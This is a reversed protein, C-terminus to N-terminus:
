SRGFALYLIVGAAFLAVALLLILIVNMGTFPLASHSAHKCTDLVNGYQTFAPGCYQTASPAM